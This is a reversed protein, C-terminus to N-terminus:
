SVEFEWREMNRCLVEAYEETIGKLGMGNLRCYMGGWSFETVVKDSLRDRAVVTISTERFRHWKKMRLEDEREHEM